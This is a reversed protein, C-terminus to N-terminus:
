HRMPDLPYADCADGYGDGDVDSQKGSDMLRIPNFVDPCDDTTDPVGDGDKDTSTIGDPYTERWPVCTPEGAPTADRCSALAYVSTAVGELDSLTVGPTDICVSRAIGCVTWPTCAAGGDTLSAVLAADGYLVTGGRLVLHVDESSASVVAAYGQNETGDFVTVDALKGVALSGIQSDFGAAEAGNITAMEFLDQDTFVGAFYSENLSRACALERLMNMSGSPLWDTGLAVPVSAYVLETVPTTDGYLSVNSRPAWILYSGATELKAVDNANMGVGHIVSTQKTVLGNAANGACTLENEASLEVGEALHPAYKGGGHFVEGSYSIDPYGCGSTLLLGNEDGLPFTDFDVTPGTLGETEDTPTNYAALNRALGAVGGSGIVSSGGGLILRLEQAAITPVDTTDHVDPLAAFGEEGIRWDDRHDYRIGAHAEPSVTAYETHDHANVLAPSIVGHACEVVSAAGYGPSSSCSAAACTITGASSVLLEGVTPGSPLLLTGRLLTGSTGATVLCLAGSASPADTPRMGADTAGSHHSGCALSLAGLLAVGPSLRHM